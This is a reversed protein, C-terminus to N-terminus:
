LFVRLQIRKQAQEIWNVTGYGRVKLKMETNDEWRRRSRGPPENVDSRGIHIKYKERKRAYYLKTNLKRDTRLSLFYAESVVM